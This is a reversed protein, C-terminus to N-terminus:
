RASSAAAGAKEVSPLSPLYPRSSSAPVTANTKAKDSSRARIFLASLNPSTAAESSAVDTRAAAMTPASSLPHAPDISLAAQLYAASEQKHGTEQEYRSALLLLNADRRYRLLGSRLWTEAAKTDHVALAASVAVSVDEATANSLDQTRLMAVATKPQDIAVYGRALSRLAEPNDFFATTATSLTLKARELDGARAQEGAQRVAWGAWVQQVTRRQPDSLDARSGLAMLIPYLHVEDGTGSLWRAFEVSMGAPVRSKASAAAQQLRGWTSLARSRDNLAAYIMAETQLFLLNSELQVRVPAPVSEAQALAERDHGSAHLSAFLGAWAQANEFQGNGIAARFLAYAQASQGEELLLSALQLQAPGFVPGPPQSAGALLSQLVQQAAGSRGQNAEVSAVTLSFAPEKLAAQRTAEPMQELTQLAAADRQLQHQLTILGAWAAPSSTATIARRYIQEAGATDGSGALSSARALEDGMAPASTNAVTTVPSKTVPEPKLTTTAASSGATDIRPAPAAELGPAAIQDHAPSDPSREVALTPAPTGDAEDELRVRAMRVQAPAAKGLEPLADGSVGMKQLGQLIAPDRVGAQQAQQLLRVADDRQGQKLRLLGLGGLARGNAPDRALLVKFRAEAERLRGGNLAAFGAREEEANAGPAAGSVISAATLATARPSSVDPTVAVPAPLLNAPRAATSLRAPRAGASPPTSQGLLLPLPQDQTLAPPKAAEPRPERTVSALAVLTNSTVPLQRAPAEGNQASKSPPPSPQAVTATQRSRVSGSLLSEGEQQTRTNLVLLAGLAKRYRKDQPFKDTLARLSAIAEPRGEETAGETTYYRLAINGPPPDAGYLKRYAAMAEPYKGERALQEAERLQSEKDGGVSGSGGLQSLSSDEPHAARLRKLYSEAESARGTAQSTRVMGKLADSNDPEQRLVQEWTERALESRGRLELARAKGTLEGVASAAQPQMGWGAAATVLGFFLALVRGEVHTWRRKTNRTGARLQGPFWPRPLPSM